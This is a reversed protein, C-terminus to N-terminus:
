RFLKKLLGTEKSKPEERVPTKEAQPEPQVPAAKMPKVSLLGNKTGYVRIKKSGEAFSVELKKGNEARVNKTYHGDSVRIFVDSIKEISVLSKKDLIVKWSVGEGTGSFLLTNTGEREQIYASVEKINEMGAIKFEITVADDQNSMHELVAHPHSELPLSAIKPVSEDLERFLTKWEAIFKDYGFRKTVERANRSLTERLEPNEMLSIIKESMEEVSGDKVLLGDVGDRIIDRPGFNIDYAIVPTGYSLSETMSMGFGESRSTMLTAYAGPYVASMDAAFGKLIVNDELKLDNILSVTENEQDDSYGFGYIELRAKPNKAAVKEFAKIGDEVRKKYHIRAVLIFLNPDAKVGQVHQAPKVFHPIVEFSPRDGYLLAASERQGHTLYIMKDFRDLNSYLSNWVGSVPAGDSYPITFHSSHAFGVKRVNPHHVGLVADDLNKNPLNYLRDRFEAFIIPNEDEAIVKEIWYSYLDAMDEFEKNEDGFYQCKTWNKKADLWISLYCKGDKGFYKHTREHKSGTDYIIEKVLYGDPSYEQRKTRIRAENMKDCFILRGERDFRKYQVYDGNKFYRYSPNEKQSHDQFAVLGEEEAQLAHSDKQVSMDKSPDLDYLCNMVKINQHLIGEKKMSRVDGWLTRQYSITLLSIMREPMEECMMNLRAVVAKTLGSRKVAITNLIFYPNSITKM